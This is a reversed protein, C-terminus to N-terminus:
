GIEVSGEPVGARSRLRRAFFQMIPLMEERNSPMGDGPRKWQVYEVFQFVDKIRELPGRTVRTGSSGGLVLVPTGNKKGGAKRGVGGPLTGGVTM